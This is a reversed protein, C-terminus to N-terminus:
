LLWSLPRRRWCSWIRTLSFLSIKVVVVIVLHRLWPFCVRSPVGGGVHAICRRRRSESALLAVGGVVVLLRRCHRCFNATLAFSVGLVVVLRLCRCCCCSALPLLLSLACFGVSAAVLFSDAGLLLLVAVVALRQRQSCSVLSPLSFVAIVFLSM